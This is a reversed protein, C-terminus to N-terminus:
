QKEQETRDAVENLRGHILTAIRHSSVEPPILMLFRGDPGMLYMTATHEIDYGGHEDPVNRYYVHFARAATAIEAASGTLGLIRKDFQAIYEALVEPTDREPDVSIFLSQVLKAEDGLEDLAQSITLLTTPCVAPCSTYGFFVILYRGLFQQNTAARGHHDVLTFPGGFTINTAESPAVTQKAGFYLWSVIPSGLVIAVSAPILVKKLGASM